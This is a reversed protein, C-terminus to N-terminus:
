PSPEFRSIWWTNGAVDTFGAQREQYPNDQAEALSKAGLAIARNYVDDVNEVYVYIACTWPAIDPPLAGAEIVIVSDAIQLEVHFNEPGFEHRELEAAGFTKKVFDLLAVPGHIYPRVAGIGHRVHNQKAIM